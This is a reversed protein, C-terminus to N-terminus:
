TVYKDSETSVRKLSRTADRIRAQHADPLKKRVATSKSDGQVSAGSAGAAGSAGGAGIAGGAASVAPEKVTAARNRWM